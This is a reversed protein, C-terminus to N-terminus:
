KYKKQYAVRKAADIRYYKSLGYGFSDSKYANPKFNEIWEHHMVYFVRHFMFACPADEAVIREAQRYLETRENSDPMVSAMEYIRDFEANCYNSSNPWPSTKSYFVQLFNEVDPYDAVWGSSYMQVGKTRLKELYSPWDLYEAEVQLGINLMATQLFQGMQRYTTDTGPMSLKLIPLEGGHLEKAQRLFVKAKEPNYETKSFTKINPDYGPMIPPIFGYAVDGRGNFFLEIWKQRDIACSIALRLPKNKGLVPDEMNFGVWFTDPEQFTALKINREKMDATLEIGPAIAQGFNDKPISTIDINGQLFMLWRPQDETVIRWVIRNCFPLPKGADRLLGKAADDAEGQSPYLVTRYNANKVMEIFSGRNWVKLKFPGTGVPHSIIDKGYYDETEKAIPATPLHALLYTIQPWPKKLKIVLTYDDPTQLGEVSRSYDVEGRSKCEKTYSRFEDLGAIKGDFIWWNKSLSKVNAIRKWAYVFDGAKLERGKGKEFCADDSFYVGKKIRIVYSLRDESVQPMDEALQPILQYPRKLYHYQYLCEFIEEAVADSIVDGIDAPDLTQVKANLRHQLVIDNSNADSPQRDCGAIFLVATFLVNLFKLAFDKQSLKHQGIM